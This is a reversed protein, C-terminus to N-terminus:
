ESVNPHEAYPHKTYSHEAPGLSMSPGYIHFVSRHSQASGPFNTRAYKIYLRAGLEYLFLIYRSSGSWKPRGWAIAEVAVSCVKDTQVFVGRRRCPRTTCGRSHYAYLRRPSQVHVYARHLPACRPTKKAAITILRRIVIAVRM